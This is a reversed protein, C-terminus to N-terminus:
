KLIKKLMLQLDGVTSPKILFDNAGLALIEETVRPAASTSYMYVATAKLREIKRIEELTERGGMKPMNMDIFIYDPVLAGNGLKEMAELGNEAFVCEITPDIMKAADCFFDQDDVDDDIFLCRKSFAM